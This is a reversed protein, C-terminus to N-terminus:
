ECVRPRRTDLLENVGAERLREELAQSGERLKFALEEAYLPVLAFFNVKRGEGIDLAQFGAPVLAPLLLLMCCLDTNMAYPRPPEGNPVTHGWFLWTKYEHPFRALRRLWRIPWYVMEDAFDTTEDLSWEPPLCLMLEAFRAEELGDPPTMPRMSMGSTILTYHNREPTPRLLHVDIHVLDSVAEHLVLDVKGLHKEIHASIHNILENDDAAAQFPRPELRHQYIPAGSESYGEVDAM